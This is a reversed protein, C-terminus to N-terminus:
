YPRVSRTIFDFDYLCELNLSPILDLNFVKMASVTKTFMAPFEVGLNFAMPSVIQYLTVVIRVKQSSVVHNVARRNTTGNPSVHCCYAHEIVPSHCYPPVFPVVEGALNDSVLCM